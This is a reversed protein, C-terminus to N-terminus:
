RLKTKTLSQQSSPDSDAKAQAQEVLANSDYGKEGILNQAALGGVLKPALSCDARNAETVLTSLPMGHADVALNV